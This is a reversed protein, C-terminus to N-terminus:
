GNSSVEEQTQVRRVPDIHERWDEPNTNVYFDEEEVSWCVFHHQALEKVRAACEPSTFNEIRELDRPHTTHFFCYSVALSFAIGNMDQPRHATLFIDLGKTRGLRILKDLNEDIRQPSGLLSAEDVVIALERRRFICEYFDAFDQDVKGASRYIVVNGAANLSEEFDEPNNSVTGNSFQANPDFIAVGVRALRAHHFALGSKGMGMRGTIIEIKTNM